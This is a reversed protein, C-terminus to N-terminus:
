NNTKCYYCVLSVRGSAHKSNFYVVGTDIYLENMGYNVTFWPQRTGYAGYVYSMGLDVAQYNGSAVETSVTWQYNTNPQFSHDIVKRYIKNGNWTMGTNVEVDKEFKMSEAVANSSVAHLNGSEVVNVPQALEDGTDKTAVIQGVTLNALDATVAARNEYIPIKETPVQELTPTNPTTHRDVIFQKM